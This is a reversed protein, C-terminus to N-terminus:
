NVIKLKEIEYTYQDLNIKRSNLLKKLSIKKKHISSKPVGIMTLRQKEIESQSRKQGTRSKNGLNAKSIKNKSEQSLVRGRNKHHSLQPCKKGKNWPVRGRLKQLEAETYRHRYNSSLEGTYKGKLALSKKHKTEESQKLGLPGLATPNINYGNDEEYSKYLDLYSQEKELLKERSCLELIKFEFNQEGYKNWANQLYTCTSKNHRLDKKHERWRDYIDVSRGVYVKNNTKNRIQYIGIVIM